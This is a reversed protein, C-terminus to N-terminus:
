LCPLQSFTLGLDGILIDFDKGVIARTCNCEAAGSLIYNMLSERGAEADTAYVGLAERTVHYDTESNCDDRGQVHTFSKYPDYLAREILGTLGPQPKTEIIMEPDAALAPAVGACTSVLFLVAANVPRSIIKLM